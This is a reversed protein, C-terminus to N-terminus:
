GGDGPVQQIVLRLSTVSSPVDVPDVFGGEMDRNYILDNGSWAHVLRRGGESAIFTIYDCFFRKVKIGPFFRSKQVRRAVMHFTITIGMLSVSTPISTLQSQKKRQPVTITIGGPDARKELPKAPALQKDDAANSKERQM